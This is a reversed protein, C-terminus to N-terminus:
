LTVYRKDLPINSAVQIYCTMNKTIDHLMHASSIALSAQATSLRVGRKSRPVWKAMHGMEASFSLGDFIPM